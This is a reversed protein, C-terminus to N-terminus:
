AAKDLLKRVRDIRGNAEEESLAVEILGYQNEIVWYDDGFRESVRKEVKLTKLKIALAINLDQVAMGAM